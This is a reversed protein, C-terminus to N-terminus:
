DYWIRPHPNFGNTGSVPTAHSITNYPMGQTIHVTRGGTNYKKYLMQQVGASLPAACSTLTRLSTLKYNKLVVTSLEIQNWNWVSPYISERPHGLLGLCIPPVAWAHTVQYADICRLFESMEFKPM